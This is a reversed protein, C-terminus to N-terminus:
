VKDKDSSNDIKNVSDIKEKTKNRVVFTYYFVRHVYCLPLLIFGGKKRLVLYIEKMRAYSPFAKKMLWKFKSGGIQELEKKQKSALKGYAGDEIIKNILDSYKDNFLDLCLEEILICDKEYSTHKYANHIYSFDLQDKYKNLYLHLDVFNKIGIGGYEYHTLLHLFIYLYEDEKKKFFFEKSGEKFYVNKLAKDIVDQAFEKKYILRHHLEITVFNEIALEVDHDTRQIIKYGKKQLLSVAKALYKDGVYIDIDSMYRLEEEPYLSKLTFGKVCMFSINNSTFLEKIKFLAEKQANNRKMENAYNDLLFKQLKLSTNEDMVLSLFSIMGNEKADNLLSPTINFKKDENNLVAKIVALLDQM